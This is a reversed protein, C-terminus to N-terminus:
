SHTHTNQTQGCSQSKCLTTSQQLSGSEAARPKSSDNEFENHRDSSILREKLAAVSSTADSRVPEVNM